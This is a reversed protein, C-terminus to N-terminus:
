PNNRYALVAARAKKATGPLNPIGAFILIEAANGAATELSKIRKELLAAVDSLIAHELHAEKKGPAVRGPQITSLAASAASQYRLLTEDLREALTEYVEGRARLLTESMLARIEEPMLDLQARLTNISRATKEVHMVILGDAPVTSQAKKWFRYDGVREGIEQALGEADPLQKILKLARPALSKDIAGGTYQKAIPKPM